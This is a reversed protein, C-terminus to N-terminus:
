TLIREIEPWDSPKWVYVEGGADRLRQLWVEQEPEVMGTESKLEAFIIRERVFVRDPWGAASKRANYCHWSHWGLGEAYKVLERDFDKEDVPEPPPTPLNVGVVVTGVTKLIRKELERSIRM